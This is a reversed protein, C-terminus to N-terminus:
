TACLEELLGLELDSNPDPSFPTKLLVCAGQKFCSINKKHDADHGGVDGKLSVLLTKGSQLKSEHVSNCGWLNGLTM